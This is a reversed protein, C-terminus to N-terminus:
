SADGIGGILLFGQQIGKNFTIFIQPLVTTPERLAIACSKRKRMDKVQLKCLFEPNFHTRPAHFHFQCIINGVKCVHDVVTPSSRIEQRIVIERQNLKSAKGTSINRLITIRWKCPFWVTYTCTHKWSVIRSVQALHARSDVKLRSLNINVVYNKQVMIAMIVKIFCIMTMLTMM